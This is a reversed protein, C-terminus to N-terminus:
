SADCWAEEKSGRQEEGATEGEREVDLFVGDGRSGGGRRRGASSPPTHYVALVLTRRCRSGPPLLPRPLVRVDWQAAAGGRVADDDAGVACRPDGIGAQVGDRADVRFGVPRLRGAAWPVGL